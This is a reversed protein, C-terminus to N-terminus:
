QATVIVKDLYVTATSAGVYFELLTTADTNASNFTFPGFTQASTTLNVVPSTWYTTWPDNLQQIALKMTRTAAAKGMFTLTYTKGATIPLSQRLQVHWDATGGNTITVRAANTGSLGAGTVVSWTSAAGGWNGLTWNATGGDFEPNLILNSAATPTATPPIPTNTRTPTVTPPVLTNTPTNTPAAPTNTRTPTATPPVSTNTPTATPGSGDTVIIKDIYVTATSAGLYFELLTTADTNTSTFTFPGFTQASTTLNIVPSTWYTTWPDNIQQIALKMTRAASAKGMFTITYTKGATIPLVQRLQVHWDTTGGNTILVRAANTGSLGVGTVVSWTSAAGGWNGLTWNATGGDFEPNLILNSGGGATPTATPAIPTNTRTPTATPTATAVSTPTPAGLPVFTFDHIIIEVDQGNGPPTGHFLWLNMHVPIPNQPINISPNAPTYNWSQLAPPNSAVDVLGNFGKYSVGTSSWTFRNTTVTSGSINWTFSQITGSTTAPYVTWAVPNAAPNGFKSYEIDIENTGDPGIDPETYNFLGLVVNPDLTSIPGEIQWQYTGFGLRVSTTVEAAYWTGGINNLRLHLFGNGDVFVNNTNFNNPGPGLTGSKVDWTYGKWNITTAALAAPSIPGAVSLGLLAAILSLASAFLFLSRRFSNKLIM